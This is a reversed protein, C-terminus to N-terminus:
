REVKDLIGEGSTCKIERQVFTDAMEKLREEARVPGTNDQDSQNRSITNVEECTEQVHIGPM